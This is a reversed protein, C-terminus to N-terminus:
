RHEIIEELLRFIIARYYCHGEGKMIRLGCYESRLEENAPLCHTRPQLKGAADVVTIEDGGAILSSKLKGEENQRNSPSLQVYWDRQQAKYVKVDGSVFGLKTKLQDIMDVAPQIQISEVGGRGRCRVTTVTSTRFTEM